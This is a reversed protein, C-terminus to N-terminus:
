VSGRTTDDDGGFGCIGHGDRVCAVLFAVILGIVFVLM